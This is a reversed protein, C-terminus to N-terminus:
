VNTSTENILRVGEFIEGFARFEITLCGGLYKLFKYKSWIHDVVGGFIEGFAHFEINLCGGLYDSFKYKSCIHEMGGRELCELLPAPPSRNFAISDLGGRFM